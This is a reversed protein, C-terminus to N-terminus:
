KLIYVQTNLLFGLGIRSIIGETRKLVFVAFDGMVEAIIPLYLGKRQYRIIKLDLRKFLKMLGCSTYLNIHGPDKVIDPYILPVFFKFPAKRALSGFFEFFNYKQPTSIILCGDNKKIRKIEELAAESGRIHELVESFIVLDFNKDKFPLNFVSGQVLAAGAEKSVYSLFEYSVDLSIVKHFKKQLFPLYTGAGTGIELVRMEYAGVEEIFSKIAEYRLNHLYRRAPNGSNYGKNLIDSISYAQINM